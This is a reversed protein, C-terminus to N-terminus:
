SGISITNLMLPSKKLKTGDENMKYLHVRHYIEPDFFSDERGNEFYYM